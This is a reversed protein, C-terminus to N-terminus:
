QVPDGLNLRKFAGAVAGDVAVKAPDGSSQEDFRYNTKALKEAVVRPNKAETLIEVADAKLGFEKILGAVNEREAKVKTTEEEQERRLRTKFDEFLKDPDVAAVTTSGEPQAVAGAAAEGAESEKSKAPTKAKLAAIEQRREISESLVDKFPKQAKVIEESLEEKALDVEEYVAEGAENTTKRFYTM